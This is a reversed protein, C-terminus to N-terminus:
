KSNESLVMEVMIRRSKEPENLQLAVAFRSCARDTRRRDDAMVPDPAPTKRM